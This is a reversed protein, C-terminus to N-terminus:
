AKEAEEFSEFKLGVNPAPRFGAPSREPEEEEIEVVDDKFVIEIYNEEQKSRFTSVGNTKLVKLMADLTESDM